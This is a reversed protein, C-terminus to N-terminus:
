GASAEVSIRAEVSRCAAVLTPVFIEPRGVCAGHDGEVEFIEAGPISAALKRQRQAPVLEDRTTVLVATPVGVDGIWDHSSFAGLARTAQIVSAPDHGAFERFVRERLEPHEIRALMRQLLRERALSPAQRKRCRRRQRAQRAARAIQRPM